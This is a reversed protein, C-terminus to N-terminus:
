GPPAAYSVARDICESLVRDEFDVDQSRCFERIRELGEDRRGTLLLVFGHVLQHQLYMDFGFRRYQLRSRELFFRCFDHMSHVRDFDALALPVFYEACDSIRTAPNRADGDKIRSVAQPPVNGTIDIPDIVLDMVASKETSQHRFRRSQVAPAFGCSIGWAPSYRAGGVAKLVFLERLPQKHSRVWHRRGLPRFGAPELRSGFEREIHPEVEAVTFVPFL